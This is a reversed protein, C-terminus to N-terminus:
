VARVGARAGREPHGCGTARGPGGDGGGGPGPDCPRRPEAMTAGYSRQAAEYRQNALTAEEQAAALGSAYTSLFGAADSQQGSLDNLGARVSSAATEFAHSAQGKWAALVANVATTFRSAETELDSAGTRLASAASRIGAPDGDPLTLGDSSM